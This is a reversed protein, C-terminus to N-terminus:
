AAAEFRGGDFLAQALTKRYEVRDPARAAAVELEPIAEAFHELRRASEGHLYRHEARAALSPDTAELTELQRFIPIALDYRCQNHRLAALDYLGSADSPDLAVYQDLWKASEFWRRERFAFTAAERLVARDAPASRLWADYAEIAAAVRGERALARAQTPGSADQSCFIGALLACFGAALIARSLAFTEKWTGPIMTQLGAM